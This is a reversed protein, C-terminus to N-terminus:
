YYCRERSKGRLSRSFFIPTTKKDSVTIAAHCRSVAHDPIAIQCFSSRGISTRGPWLFVVRAPLEVTDDNSGSNETPLPTTM